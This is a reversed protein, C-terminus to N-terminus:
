SGSGPPTSRAAHWMRPFFGIKMCTASFLIPNSLKGYWCLAYCKGFALPNESQTRPSTSQEQYCDTRGDVCIFNFKAIMRTRPWASRISLPQTQWNSRSATRLCIKIIHSSCRILPELLFSVRSFFEVLSAYANSNSKAEFCRLQVATVIVM